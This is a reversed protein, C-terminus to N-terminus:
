RTEKEVQFHISFFCSTFLSTVFSKGVSHLNMMVIHKDIKLMQCMIAPWKNARTWDLVVFPFTDFFRAQYSELIWTDGCVIVERPFAILQGSNRWWRLCSTRTYFALGRRKERRSAGFKFNLNQLWSLSPTHILRRTRFVHIRFLPTEYHLFYICLAFITTPYHSSANNWLKQCDQCSWSRYKVNVQM